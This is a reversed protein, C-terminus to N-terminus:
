LEGNCAVDARGSDFGNLRSPEREYARISAALSPVVIVDVEGGEDGGLGAYEESQL